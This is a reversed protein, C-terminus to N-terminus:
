DAEHVDETVAFGKAELEAVRARFARQSLIETEGNWSESGWPRKRSIRETLAYEAPEGNM